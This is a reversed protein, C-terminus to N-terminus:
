IAGGSRARLGDGYVRARLPSCLFFAWCRLPPREVVVLSCGLQSANDRDQEKDGDMNCDDNGQVRHRYCRMMIHMVLMMLVVMAVVLILMVM